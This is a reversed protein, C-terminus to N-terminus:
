KPAQTLRPLLIGTLTNMLAVGRERGADDAPLEVGPAARHYFDPAVAVYGLAAIRDAVERIDATVGFLQHALIRALRARGPWKPACM